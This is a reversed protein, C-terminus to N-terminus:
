QDAKERKWVTYNSDGYPIIAVIRYSPNRELIRTIGHDLQNDFGHHHLAVISFYGDKIYRAFESANDPFGVRGHEDVVHGSPLTINFTSSWLKWRAGVATYYEALTPTEVLMPGTDANAIPRFWTVFSAANPWSAFLQQAQQLGIDVPISMAIACGATALIRIMRPRLLDIVHNISYGAAIAAFWASVAVHKDLSTLTHIRAQELPVALLAILMPLPMLRAPWSREVLMSIVTAAGVLCALYSTWSWAQAIVAAASSNSPAREFVTIVIGHAYWPGGLKFLIAFGTVVYAILSTCRAKAVNWGFTDLASMGILLLIIPDFILSSYATLDSVIMAAGTALTWGTANRQESSRVACWAALAMLCLSLADFTAFAGLKLTPGLVAWLAAAFFGARRGFLRSATSWLLSTAALMFVLSLIRAAALGGISNALAGVPPYIVPAGSFYTPFPPVPTGHLWHSWELRGAWLYLAEDQFATNSWVLKLSLSAQVILTALLPLGTAIRRPWSLRSPEDPLRYPAGRAGGDSSPLTPRSPVPASPPQTIVFLSGIGDTQQADLAGVRVKARESPETPLEASV